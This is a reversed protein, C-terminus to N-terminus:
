GDVKVRAWDTLVNVYRCWEDVVSSHIILAQKYSAIPKPLTVPLELLDQLMALIAFSAVFGCDAIGLKDGTLFPSPKTIAALDEFRNQLLTANQAILKSNRGSPAVQSFYSRIIPEIRTDHFRSIERANARSMSDSPLMPPEPYIEELYEAIAESDSLSFGNHMIAPVTGAPIIKKYKLSGYGDPPLQDVWDLGKHSLAVRVKSGFNSVPVSFLTIM